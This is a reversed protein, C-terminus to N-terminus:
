EKFGPNNSSPTVFEGGAVKKFGEGEHGSEKKEFAKKFSIVPSKEKKHEVAKHQGEGEVVHVLSTVIGSLDKSQANLQEAAVSAAQAAASNQQTVEEMQGVAKSIERIGAGQEQSAVAIEAVLSDVSAVNHLIEELAENCSKATQSGVDVKSKSNAMLKEVKHKTESVISDVQGVSQELLETIEKAANGSMQALNGVEEAVVAFGKGYEGARAAEVSANFSLLKTQFVIENIVKTKTGITHILKTIDSLQRNSHNMQESIEENASNIDSIAQIMNEVTQKGQMAAERSKGSVVKSQEAAEANKGVMASIEDVAAVTEQLAAAQETAAESLQTSQSAIKSAADSLDGSNKNLSLTVNGVSKSTSMGFWFGLAISIFAFAFSYTFFENKASYINAYSEKQNARVVVTWGIAAPFKPEDIKIYGVVDIENDILDKAIGVGSENKAMEAGLVEIDTYLNTKFLDTDFIIKGEHQNPALNSIVLGDKNIISAQVSTFGRKAFGLYMDKLETEIWRNHTRNTIVGVVEGAENKIAATFSVGNRKEDFSIKYIPDEHMDEFFTGDFAKEKDATWKGGIAAQFWPQDKFSEKKLKETQLAVGGTDKSNSGIYNGQKDVVLIVDYIGYLRVYEDLYYSLKSQNLEKVVPNLAFAQVDGYREYFQAAIKESLGNAQGKIRMNTAQEYSHSFHNVAVMGGVFNLLCVFIVMGIIKIKLSLKNYFKM